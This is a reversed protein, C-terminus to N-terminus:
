QAFTHILYYFPERKAALPETEGSIKYMIFYNFIFLETKKPTNIKKGCSIYEREAYNGIRVQTSENSYSSIGNIVLIGHIGEITLHM